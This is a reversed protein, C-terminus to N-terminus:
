AKPKGKEETALELCIADGSRVRAFLKADGEVQGLVNVPSYPTQGFFICFAHGPPWYAIAGYPVTSHPNDEPMKVPTEFYIEEGWTQAKSKVPLVKLLEKATKSNNLTATMTVNADKAIIRLKPM